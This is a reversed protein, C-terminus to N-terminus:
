LGHFRTSFLVAASAPDDAHTTEGELIADTAYKIRPDQLCPCPRRTVRSLAKKREPRVESQSM